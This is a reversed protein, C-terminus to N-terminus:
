NVRRLFPATPLLDWAPLAGALAHVVSSEHGLGPQVAVPQVNTKTAQQNNGANTSSANPDRDSTM